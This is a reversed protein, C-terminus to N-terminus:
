KKRVVIEVRRNRAKGASSSNADIPSYQSHGAVVFRGDAIKCDDVLYTLVAMSRAVSLERNSGFKAKKIPDTDTHGEIWYRGDAYDANLVKSVEKLAQRGKDTLEAKGSAFTIETPLTFVMNGDRQEYGVGADDLKPYDKVADVAPAIPSAAEQTRKSNAEALAMEYSDLQSRLSQNDKKLGVREERLATLEGEYDKMKKQTACGSTLALSFLLASAPLVLSAIRQFTAQNM